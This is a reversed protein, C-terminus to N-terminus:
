IIRSLHNGCLNVVDVEGPLSHRARCNRVLDRHHVGGALGHLGLGTDVDGGLPDDRGFGALEPQEEGAWAFHGFLHFSKKLYLCLSLSRVEAPVSKNQIRGYLM